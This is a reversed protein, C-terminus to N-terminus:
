SAPVVGDIFNGCREGFFPIPRFSQKLFKETEQQPSGKGM